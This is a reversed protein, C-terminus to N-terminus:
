SESSASAVPVPNVKESLRKPDVLAPLQGLWTPAHRHFAATFQGRGLTRGLRGLAELIPLYAEGPGYAEVCQGHGVWMSTNLPQPQPDPTRVKSLLPKPGDSRLNHVRSELRQLFAEVLTTKGIGPEGSVLVVHRQGQQAQTVWQQLQALERHRGVFLASPAVRTLAAGGPPRAGALAPAAAEAPRVGLFRYGQRGVTEIYQPFAAEDELAQRIERVCVRIAGRGVRTDGWVATRIEEISIVRGPHQVLYALVALPLPRLSLRTEERWLERKAVEVRFPGFALVADPARMM